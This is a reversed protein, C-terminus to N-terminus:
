GEPLLGALAPFEYIMQLGFASDYVSAGNFDAGTGASLGIWLGTLGAAVLGAPLALRGALAGLGALWSRRPEARPPPAPQLRAADAEIRALLAASPLPADARAGALILDLAADDIDLDREHAM